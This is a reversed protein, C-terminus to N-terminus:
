ILHTRFLSLLKGRLTEEIEVKNIKVDVARVFLLVDVFISYFISYTHFFLIINISLYYFHDKNIILM